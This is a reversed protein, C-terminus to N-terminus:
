NRFNTESKEPKMKAFLEIDHLLKDANVHHKAMIACVIDQQKLGRLIQQKTEDLSLKLNKSLRNKEHYYTAIEERINQTRNKMKEWQETLSQYGIFTKTFRGTFQDWTQIESRNAAYWDKAARKLHIRATELVFEDPWSHLLAMGKLTELWETAGSKSLGYFDRIANTLDPIVKFQQVESGGTIANLIRHEGAVRNDEMKAMLTAFMKVVDDSMASAEGRESIM